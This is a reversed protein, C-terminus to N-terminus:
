IVNKFFLEKKSYMYYLFTTYLSFFVITVAVAFMNFELNLIFIFNWLAFLYISVPFLIVHEVMFVNWSWPKMAYIPIALLLIIVGLFIILYGSDIYPQVYHPSYGQYRLSRAEMFNNFGLIIFLGGIVFLISTIIVIGLPKPIKKPVYFRKKLKSSKTVKSGCAFCYQADARILHGCICLYKNTEMNLPIKDQLPTNNIKESYEKRSLYQGKSTREGM